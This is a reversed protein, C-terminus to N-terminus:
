EDGGLGKPEARAAHAAVIKELAEKNAQVGHQDAFSMKLTPDSGALKLLEDKSIEGSNFRELINM